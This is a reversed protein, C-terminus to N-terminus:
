PAAAELQERAWRRERQEAATPRQRHMIIPAAPGTGFVPCAPIYLGCSSPGEQLSPQGMCLVCITAPDGPPSEGSDMMRALKGQLEPDMNPTGYRALWARWADSLPEAPPDIRRLLWSGCSCRVREEAHEPFDSGHWVRSCACQWM